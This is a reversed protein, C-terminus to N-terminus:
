RGDSGEDCPVNIIMRDLSIIKKYEPREGIEYDGERAYTIRVGNGFNSRCVSAFSVCSPFLKRVEDATTNEPIVKNM